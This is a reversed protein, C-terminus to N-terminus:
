YPMVGFTQDWNPITMFGNPKGSNRVPSVAPPHAKDNHYFIVVPILVNNKCFCPLRLIEIRRRRDMGRCMTHCIPVTDHCVKLAKM